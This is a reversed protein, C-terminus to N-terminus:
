TQWTNTCNMRPRYGPGQIRVMANHLVERRSTNALIEDNLVMDLSIPNEVPSPRGRLHSRILKSQKASCWQCHVAKTSYSPVVRRVRRFGGRCLLGINQRMVSNGSILFIGFQCHLLLLNVGFEGPQTENAM